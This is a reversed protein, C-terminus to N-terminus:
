APLHLVVPPRTRRHPNRGRHDRHDPRRPAARRLEPRDGRRPQRHDPLPIATPWAAMNCRARGTAGGPFELDADLWEDVGPHGAREGARAAAVRPPGGAWPALARHAHLSYCGIDMLAGGALEYSWRPDRDDPAPMFMDIEAARLEGLEGSDLLEHLRRTVPHYLGAARAYQRLTMRTEARWRRIEEAYALRGRREVEERATGIVRRMLASEVGYHEHWGAISEVTRALGGWPSRRIEAALVRWDSLTGRDMLAEIAEAPWDTVPGETDVDVHRVRM